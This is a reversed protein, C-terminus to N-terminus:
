ISSNLRLDQPIAAPVEAMVVQAAMTHGPEPTWLNRPCLVPKRLLMVVGVVAQSRRAIGAAMTGADWQGVARAATPAPEEMQATAAKLVLSTAALGAMMGAAKCEAAVAPTSVVRMAIAATAAWGVAAGGSIAILIWM